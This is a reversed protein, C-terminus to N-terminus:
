QKIRLLTNFAEIYGNEWALNEEPSMFGEKVIDHIDELTHSTIKDEGEANEKFEYAKDSNNEVYEAIEYVYCNYNELAENRLKKIM